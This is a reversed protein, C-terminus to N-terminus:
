GGRLLLASRRGGPSIRWVMRLGPCRLGCTLLMPRNREESSFEEDYLDFGVNMGVRRHLMVNSVFAATDWGAERFIAALTTEDESLRTQGNSPGVSHANVFRSTM